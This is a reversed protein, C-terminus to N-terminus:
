EEEEDPNDIEIGGEIRKRCIEETQFPGYWNTWTKNWFIWTGDELCEVPYSNFGSTQLRM